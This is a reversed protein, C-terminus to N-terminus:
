EERQRKRLEPIKRQVLRVLTMGRAFADEVEADTVPRGLERELITRFRALAEPTPSM